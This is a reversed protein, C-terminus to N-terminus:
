WREVLHERGAPPDYPEPWYDTVRVIAGGVVGFFAIGEGAAEGDVEWDFWAVGDGADAIVLRPRLHWDGPYEQNFRLYTERGRIRERSQPLEYVVEPDLLESWAQWDRRELTELFQEILARADTM